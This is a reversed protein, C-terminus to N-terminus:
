RSTLVLKAALAAMMALAGLLANYERHKLYLALSFGGGADGSRYPTVRPLM